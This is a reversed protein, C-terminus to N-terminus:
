KKRSDIMQTNHDRLFVNIANLGSNFESRMTDLKADLQRRREVTDERIREIDQDQIVDRHVAIRVDNKVDYFAAIGGMMALMLVVFNGVIWKAFRSVIRLEVEEAIEAVLKHHSSAHTTVTEVTTTDTTTEM